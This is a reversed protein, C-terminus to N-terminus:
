VVYVLVAGCLIGGGIAVGLTVLLSYFQDLAQDSDDLSSFAIISVIGALVGPMGHLNHVGCTDFINRQSM